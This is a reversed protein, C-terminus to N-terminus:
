SLTQCVGSSPLAATGTRATMPHGESPPARGHLDAEEEPGQSGISYVTRTYVEKDRGERKTKYSKENAPGNKFTKM